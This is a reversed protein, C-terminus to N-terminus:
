HNADPTKEEPGEHTKLDPHEAAFEEDEKAFQALEENWEKMMQEHEEQSPLSDLAKQARAAHADFERVIQDTEDTIREVFRDAEDEIVVLGPNRARMVARWRLFAGSIAIGAIAALIAIGLPSPRQIIGAAWAIAIVIVASVATKVATLLGDAAANLLGTLWTRPILSQSDKIRTLRKRGLDTLWWEPGEIPFDNVEAGVAGDIWGSRRATEMWTPIYAALKARQERWLQEQEPRVAKRATDETVMGFGVALREVTVRGMIDLLRPLEDDLKALAIRLDISERTQAHV